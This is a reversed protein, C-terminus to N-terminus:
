VRNLIKVDYEIKGQEFIINGKKYGLKDLNKDCISNESEKCAFDDNPYKSHLYVALGNFFEENWLKHDSRVHWIEYIKKSNCVIEIYM